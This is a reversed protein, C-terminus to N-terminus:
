QAERSRVFTWRQKLRLFPLEWAHYSAFAFGATLALAFLKELTLARLTPAVAYHRSLANALFFGAEHFVYLGFSLQGLRVLPRPCRAASIGLLAFFLSATGIGALLYGANLSAASHAVGPQKIRCAGSALLLAAVATAFLLVRTHPRLHPIRGRLLLAAAAGLAFYQFQVGSNVWATVHLTTPDAAQALFALILHAFAVTAFCFLLLVRSSFARGLVPWLLYWQEEVSISWLSRMPTTIAPHLAIYWNGALLTSALLRGPEIRFGHFRLGLLGYAALVGFYLPWIRLIRRMYFSRLHINGTADYERRLLETILFASLFFFIPVGCSGAGELAVLAERSIVASFSLLAHAFWVMTFALLRLLDLEPRYFRAVRLPGGPARSVPVAEIRERSIAASEIAM